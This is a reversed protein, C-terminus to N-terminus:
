YPCAAMTLASVIEDLTQLYKVAEVDHAWSELISPMVLTATPKLDQLAALITASSSVLPPRPYTPRFIGSPRGVYLPYMFHMWVGVLHFDPLGPTAFVTHVTLFLFFPLFSRECYPEQLGKLPEVLPSFIMKSFLENRMPISKPLGTSGSSHIYLVVDDPSEVRSSPPLPEFADSKSERALYPYIDILLPLEQIELAYGSSDLEEKVDKVLAELSSETVILRHSSVTKLMHCIATSSNRPSIPFAQSFTTETAAGRTQKHEV